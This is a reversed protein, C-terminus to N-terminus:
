QGYNILKGYRAWTQSCSDLKNWYILWEIYRLYFQPSYILCKPCNLKLKFNFYRHSLLAIVCYLREVGM